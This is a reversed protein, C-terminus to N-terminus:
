THTMPVARAMRVLRYALGFHLMATAALLWVWEGGHGSGYLAATVVLLWVGIAVRVGAVQRPYRHGLTFGRRIARDGDM